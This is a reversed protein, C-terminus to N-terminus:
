IMVIFRNLPNMFFDDNSKQQTPCSGQNICEKKPATEKTISFILIFIIAMAFSLLYIFFKTRKM